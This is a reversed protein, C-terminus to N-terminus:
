CMIARRVVALAGRMSPRALTSVPSTRASSAVDECWDDSTWRRMAELTIGILM